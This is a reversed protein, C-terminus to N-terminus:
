RCLCPLLSLWRRRPKRMNSIKTQKKEASSPMSSSGSSSASSARHASKGASESNELDKDHAEAQSTDADAEREFLAAQSLRFRAIAAEASESESGNASPRQATKAPLSASGSAGATPKQAEGAEIEENLSAVMSQWSSRFSTTALNDGAPAHASAADLGSVAKGAELGLKPGAEAGTGTAAGAGIAAATTM